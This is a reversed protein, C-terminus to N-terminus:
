QVTGGTSSAAEGTGFIRINVRRESEDGRSHRHSTTQMTGQMGEPVSEEGLGVVHISRPPVNHEVLYRQVAWARRRSLELNYNVSGVRDTFGALEVVAAPTEQVKAAIQDLSAKASPSLTAKNFAFLVDAKDVLQYNPMVTPNVTTEESSRAATGQAAAAAQAAAAQASAEAVKQDTAAIRENLQATDRLEKNTVWAIKGNTDKQNQAAQQKVMNIQQSVYKKSACGPACVVVVISMVGVFLLGNESLKM